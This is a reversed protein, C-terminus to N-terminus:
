SRSEVMRQPAFGHSSFSRHAGPCGSWHCNTPSEVYTHWSGCRHGPELGPSETSSTTTPQPSYMWRLVEIRATSSSEVNVPAGSDVFEPSSEPQNQCCSVSYTFRRLPLLGAPM